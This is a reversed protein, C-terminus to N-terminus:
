LMMPLLSADGSRGASATNLEPLEELDRPTPATGTGGFGAIRSVTSRVYDARPIEGNNIFSIGLKLQKEVVASVYQRLDSRTVEEKRLMKATMDAPRPLSGVHTTKIKNM